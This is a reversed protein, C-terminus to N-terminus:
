KEKCLPSIYGHYKGEVPCVGEPLVSGPQSAENMPHSDKQFLSFIQEKLFAKQASIVVRKEGITNYM